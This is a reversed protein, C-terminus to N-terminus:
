RWFVEVIVWRQGKGALEAQVQREKKRARGAAALSRLGAHVLGVARRERVPEPGAAGRLAEQAAEPLRELVEQATWGRFVPLRERLGRPALAALLLDPLLDPLVSSADFDSM